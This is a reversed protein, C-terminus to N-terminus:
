LIKYKRFTEVVGAGSRLEQRVNSEGQVKKWAEALVKDVVQRPVVVVGVVDAFVLDGPSVTVGGCLVPIDRRKGDMRGLSDYPTLGTGFVPFNLEMIEDYDRVGGDTIVGAVRRGVAANTLLGGWFASLGPTNCQAVIMQGPKASDLVEMEMQFPKEPIEDVAEMYLTKAEGWARMNTALPRISPDMSQNRLHMGDM